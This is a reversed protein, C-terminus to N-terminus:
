SSMEIEMWFINYGLHHFPELELKRSCDERAYQESKVDPIGCVYSKEFIEHEGDTFHMTYVTLM